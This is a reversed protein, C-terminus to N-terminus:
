FEPYLVKQCKPCITHSFDAGSLRTIYAEIKEYYGDDNRINKCHCCIPIIGRLTKIEATAQKLQLNKEEVLWKWGDLRSTPLTM